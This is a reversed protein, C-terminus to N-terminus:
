RVPFAVRVPAAVPARPTVVCLGIVAAAILACSSLVRPRRRGDAALLVFGGLGAALGVAAGGLPRWIAGLDFHAGLPGLAVPVVALLALAGLSALLLELRPRAVFHCDPPATSSGVPAPARPTPRLATAVAVLAILIACGTSAAAASTLWVNEDPLPGLAVAHAVLSGAAIALLAAIWPAGRRGGRASVVLLLAGLAVLTWALPTVLASAGWAAAGWLLLLAGDAVMSM